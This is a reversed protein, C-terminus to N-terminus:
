QSLWAISPTAFNAIAAKNWCVPMVLGSNGAHGSRSPQTFVDVLVPQRRDKLCRLASTSNSRSGRKTIAQVRRRSDLLMYVGSCQALLEGPFYGIDSNNRSDLPAVSM